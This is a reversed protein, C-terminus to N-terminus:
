PRPPAVIAATAQTTQTTTVTEVVPAPQVVQIVRTTTIVPSQCTYCTPTSYCSSYVPYSCYDYCPSYCHSYLPYNWGCNYNSPYCGKSWATGCFPDKKFNQQSMKSNNVQNSGVKSFNSVNGVKNNQQAPGQNVKMGNGANSTSMKATGGSSGAKNGGKDAHALGTGMFFLVAAATGTLLAKIFVKM